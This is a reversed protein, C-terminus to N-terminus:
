LNAKEFVFGEKWEWPGDLYQWVSFGVANITFPEFSRRLMQTTQLARFATVKNQVTIHPWLKQRDQSILFSAFKEQLSAHLVQLEDSVLEFAVGNGLNRVGAVQMPFPKRLSAERLAEPIMRENQPLRHFLTVHAELYNCWAPFYKSRLETFHKHWAPELSVTVIATAEPGHRLNCFAVPM